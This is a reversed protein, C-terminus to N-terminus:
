SDTRTAFVVVHHDFAGDVIEGACTVLTLHSQGDPAPQPGQGSVPGAGFIQALVAPDSAQEVSYTEIRTVTFQIDRNTRLDRIVILDGARLDTLDAFIAARALPDNVHGAITATGSDGPIGGGRFWFAKQWLPDDIPGKPADMANESDLGVGTVAASVHLSPIWLYLPVDVPGARLDLGPEILPGPVWPGETPVASPQIQPRPTAQVAPLASPQASVASTTPLAGPQGEGASSGACGAVVAAGILIAALPGLLGRRARASARPV